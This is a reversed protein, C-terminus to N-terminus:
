AATVPMPLRAAVRFGGEARPGASFDGHLLAVRERMGVLGHGTGPTGPRAQGDDLVEVALAGDAHEVTVRCSDVGAHRVVNTVAEQIIRFASRDIEPPLAAPTGLWQVDVRVGAEATASALRPLDALGTAPDDGPDSARLGGLMRRLEALAERSATEVVGIAQRARAPQTDFVRNAAGAQLAIIGISHAVSDHLERAIRLREGIIAQAAAQARMTDAHERRQRVLLGITVSVAVLLASFSIQTAGAAVAIRHPLPGGGYIARWGIEACVLAGWAAAAAGVGVRPRSAAAVAGVALVVALRPGFMMDGPGLAMVVAIAGGTMLFLAPLPRRGLLTVPLAMVVAPWLVRLGNADQQVSRIAIIMLLPYGLVVSWGLAPRAWRRMTGTM